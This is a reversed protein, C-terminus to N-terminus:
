WRMLQDLDFARCRDSLSNTFTPDLCDSAVPTIVVSHQSVSEVVDAGLTCLPAMFSDTGVVYHAVERLMGFFDCLVFLRRLDNMEECDQRSVHKELRSGVRM